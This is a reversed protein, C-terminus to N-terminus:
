KVFRVAYYYREGAKFWSVATNMNGAMKETYFAAVDPQMIRDWFVVLSDLSTNDKSNSESKKNLVTFIKKLSDPLTSIKTDVFVKMGPGTATKKSGVFDEAKKEPTKNAFYLLVFILVSFLIIGIQLKNLSKM